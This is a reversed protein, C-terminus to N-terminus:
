PIPNPFPLVRAGRPSPRLYVLWVLRERSGPRPSRIWSSEVRLKPCGPISRVIGGHRPLGLRLRTTRM